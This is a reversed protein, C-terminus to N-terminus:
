IILQMVAVLMQTLQSAAGGEPYDFYSFDNFSIILEKTM